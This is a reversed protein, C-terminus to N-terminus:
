ERRKTLEVFIDELSPSLTNLSVIKLGESSAFASICYIAEDVDDAWLRIKDGMKM